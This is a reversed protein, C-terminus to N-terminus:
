MEEDGGNAALWERVRKFTRRHLACPGWARLAELHERTAYGKHRAFNYQPYQRHYAEMCRDRHVKALISAAAISPCCDDGDIVPQQPLALPLPERGDILVIHPAVTLAQVALAMAKLSAALIGLREIHRVGVERIAFALAKERIEEALAARIEPTLLKSDKLGSISASHPLVVAAAVVPGALPGRGAEDVGAIYALGQERWFNEPDACVANGGRLEKM